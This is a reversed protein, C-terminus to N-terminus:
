VGRSKLEIFKFETLPLTYYVDGSGDRPGYEFDDITVAMNIPTNTIILRIPVERDIWSQIIDVYEWGWYQRSRLFPYDKSPFFSDITITQLGRKGILRIDGQNITTFTEHNQPNPIRFESPVVPLQIVQERNNISLFIDM